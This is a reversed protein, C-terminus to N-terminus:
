SSSAPEYAELTIGAIRKWQSLNAQGNSIVADIISGALESSHGDHRTGLTACYPKARMRVSPKNLALERLRSCTDRATAMYEVLGAREFGYYDRHMLEFDYYIAFVNMLVAELHLSSDGAVIADVRQLFGFSPESKSESLEMRYKQALDTWRSLRRDRPHPRLIIPVAPFELRIQGCLDEVREVPDLTNTCVGIVQATEHTNAHQSYADVKPMGVLFVRSQSPGALEYCHLAEEGELLAYDFLLPPFSSTVSAHQVYFTPIGEPIAAAVVARNVASHDNAVAVARIGKLHLWTRTVLYCGYTIWYSDLAYSFSRRRYGSSRLLRYVVLPLFPLSALYFLGVPFRYGDQESVWSDLGLGVLCAGSCTKAVPDLSMRQNSTSFFFVLCGRKPSAEGRRSMSLFLSKLFQHCFIVIRFLVGPRPLRASPLSLLHLKQSGYAYNIDYIDLALTALIIDWGHHLTEKLRMM